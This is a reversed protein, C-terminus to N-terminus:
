LRQAVLSQHDDRSPRLSGLRRGFFPQLSMTKWGAPDDESVIFHRDCVFEADSMRDLVTQPVGGPIRLCPDGAEQQGLIRGRRGLGGEDDANGIEGSCHLRDQPESTRGDGQGATTVTCLRAPAADHHAVDDVLPCALSEGALRVHDLDIPAVFRREVLCQALGVGKDHAALCLHRAFEEGVGRTEADHGSGARPDVVDIKL